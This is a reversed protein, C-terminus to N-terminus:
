ESHRKSDHMVRLGVIVSSLTTINSSFQGVGWKKEHMNVQYFITGKYNLECLSLFYLFEM